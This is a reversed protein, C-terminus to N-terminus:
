RKPLFWRYGNSRSPVGLEECVEAVLDPNFFYNSLHAIRDGDV